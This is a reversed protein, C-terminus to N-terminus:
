ADPYSRRSRAGYPVCVSSLYTLKYNEKSDIVCLFNNRRIILTILTM